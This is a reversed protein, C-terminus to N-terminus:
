AWVKFRAQFACVSTTTGKSWGSCGTSRVCNAVAKPCVTDVLRCSLDQLRGDCGLSLFFRPWSPLTPSFLAAKNKKDEKNKDEKDQGGGGGEEGGGEAM